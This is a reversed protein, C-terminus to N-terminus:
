GLQVEFEFMSMQDLVFGVEPNSLRFRITYDDIIAFAVKGDIAYQWRSALQNRVVTSTFPSGDPLYLGPHLYFDILYGDPDTLWKDALDPAYNDGSRTVLHRFVTTVPKAPAETVPAEGPLPQAFELRLRRLGEVPSGANDAVSDFTGPDYPLEIFKTTSDPNIDVMTAPPLAQVSGNPLTFRVTGDFNGIIAINSGPDFLIFFQTGLIQVSAGNPLDVNLKSGEPVFGQFGQDTLLLSVEPPSVQAVVQKTTTNNYLTLQTGDILSIKGKGNDRVSISDDNFFDRSGEVETVDGAHGSQVSTRIRSVNGIPQQATPTVGGGNDGCCVATTFVLTLFAVVPQM